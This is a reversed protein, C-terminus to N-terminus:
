RCGRAFQGLSRAHLGERRTRLATSVEDAALLEDRPTRAAFPVDVGVRLGVRGGPQAPPPTASLIRQREAQEFLQLGTTSQGPTSADSADAHEDQGAEDM